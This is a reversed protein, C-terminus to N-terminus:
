PSSELVRLLVEVGEELRRLDGTNWLVYDARRLKEEQPLQRAERSLAEERSLGSRIQVRMLREELPAAVVLVRDLAKEWGVEFLLPIELFVIPATQRDMEEMLRRRVYPHLLGELTRLKEEDSFVIRALAKEDLVGGRCAEPFAQCIRGALAKRGERALADADLVPYGRRRLLAAVTSKGSGLNGTIGVRLPM